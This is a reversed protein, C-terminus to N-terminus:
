EPHEAVLLGNVFGYVQPVHHRILAGLMQQAVQKRSMGPIPPGHRPLDDVVIAINFPTPFPTSAHAVAPAGRQGALCATALLLSAITVAAVGRAATVPREPWRPIAVLTSFTM